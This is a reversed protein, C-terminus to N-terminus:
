ASKKRFALDEFIYVLGISSILFFLPIAPIHYRSQVEFFCYSVILGILILAPIFVKCLKKRISYICGVLVFILIFMYFVQSGKKLIPSLKLIAQTETKSSDLGSLSNDYGYNENGWEIVYKRVILAAFDKPNDTIRKVAIKFAESHVKDFNYNYKKVLSADQKNYTGNSKFNTGVLINFGPSSKMINIGTIPEVAQNLCYLGIFYSLLIVAFLGFKRLLKFIITGNVDYFIFIYAAAVPFIILSIPRIFQSAALIVGLLATNLTERKLSNISNMKVLLLIGLLFFVMFIHESALTSNNMIQAPWFAFMLAAIRGVRNSVINKGIYFVLIMSLISLAINLAKAASIDIGTIRYLFSLIIPYGIKFPFVPYTPDYNTFLGKAFNAAYSQYASYDSVPLTPVKIIWLLRIAGATIATILIFFKDTLQKNTPTIYALFILCILGIILCVYFIFSYGRAINSSVAAAIILVVSILLFSTLISNSIKKLM